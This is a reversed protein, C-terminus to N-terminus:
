LAEALARLAALEGGSGQEEAGRGLRRQWFGMVEDETFVGLTLTNAMGGWQSSDRRSTILLHCNSPLYPRLARPAIQDANDYLLLVAKKSSSLHSLIMRRITPADKGLLDLELTEGLQRLDNDLTVPDDAQLLWLIDYKDRQTHAYALAVQTKGVGGMGSIAQTVVISGDAASFSDAIATLQEQRGSFNPNFPPLNNVSDPRPQPLIYNNVTAKAGKGIAVGQSNSIDGIKTSDSM